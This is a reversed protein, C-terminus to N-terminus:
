SKIKITYFNKLFIDIIKNIPAMIKFLRFIMNVTKKFLIPNSNTKQMPRDTRLTKQKFNSETQRLSNTVPVMCQSLKPLSQLTLSPKSNYNISRVKLFDKDSYRTTSKINKYFDIDTSFNDNM